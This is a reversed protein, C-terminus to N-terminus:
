VSESILALLGLDHSLQTKNGTENLRAGSDGGELLKKIFHTNLHSPFGKITLQLFVRRDAVPGWVGLLASLGWSEVQPGASHPRLGPLDDPSPPKM